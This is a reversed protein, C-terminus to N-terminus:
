APGDADPESAAAGGDGGARDRGRWAKTGRVVFAELAARTIESLHRAQDPGDNEESPTSAPCEHSFYRFPRAIQEFTGKPLGVTGWRPSRVRMNKRYDDLTVARFLYTENKFRWVDPTDNLTVTPLVRYMFVFLPQYDAGFLSQWHTLGDVDDRTAWSEWVYRPKEAPGGPFQRGKVDVLLRAGTPGLVIFDLNKVPVDGLVARRAEDVAVYCLGQERLFAEFATEYPNSRDM